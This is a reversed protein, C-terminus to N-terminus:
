AALAKGMHVAESFAVLMDLDQDFDGGFQALPLFVKEL